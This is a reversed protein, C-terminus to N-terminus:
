FQLQVGFSITRALPQAYINGFTEPDFFGTYDSSIVFPNKAELNFRVSNIVDSKLVDPTLTYGLRISSIRWYSIKRFWIDYLSYSRSPDYSNMWQYAMMQAENGVDQGLIGPLNGTKNAPTWRDNIVSTYNQGPNVKTPDYPPQIQATRDVFFNSFVSLDLGKYRLTTNFGGTLKPDRDGAYVFLKRYEEASFLTNVDGWIGTELRYFDKMSLTSGDTGKFRMIGTEPDVGATPIAFVANVPYGELSPTYQNDRVNYELVKSKNQSLNFGTTWTWDKTSINVTNITLEWGRNEVSGWNLTVFDFGNERPIAKLSILDTSLRYYYDFGVNVRDFLGLDFGVNTTSTKEWRLNQNPPTTVNVTPEEYENFFKKINWTGKVFPSTNKDINGQLGYSARFKLNSLWKIDELFPERKANWAASVSWLPLYRYKPDVGFLNSGDLRLSGFVTYRGLLTYSATSFLSLFANEVFSKRYPLLTTTTSGNYGQPFVIPKSTLTKADFGFGKAQVNTYSNRRLEVGAMFDVDHKEDFTKQLFIQNRWNYQFLRDNWNQIIGGEPLFSKGKYTYSNRFDRTFYSEAGAFQETANNEFQLGLQTSLTILSLPKYELEIVSKLSQNKLTYDTNTQEERYNFPITQNSSNIVDPDYIYRGEADVIKRYPNVNRSYNQANAVTSTALYTGRESYNGFISVRATLKDTIKFDLNTTLNYRDFSTGKTTGNEMYVGGSVYYHAREGGGSLSLSYQQNFTPAYIEDFWNAGDKRLANIQNLLEPTLIEQGSKRYADTLGSSNILRAVDGKDSQFTHLPDRLLALELDVKESANLLNLRSANPRSTYFLDGSFNIRIKGEKGRKSTIVIVGNAARAGYIATAAADKLVTISEIDSPNLGAISTNHLQDISEQANFDKPVQDGELPIGDLVWLPESSGSLSVTGRIRIQSAAGPGGGSPNVVVGALQGSLMQDVGPVAVRAIEGANITQVASTLKRREIKQYGTVVLEDLLGEAEELTANYVSQSPTLNITRNTYGIYSVIVKKVSKPLTFLYNGDYDTVTGQPEYASAQKEDPSIFVTAGILAEGTVADTVRGRITRTEQAMIVAFTMLSFILLLSLKRM